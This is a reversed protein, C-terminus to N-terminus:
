ALLGSLFRPSIEVDIMVTDSIRRPYDFAPCNKLGCMHQFFSSKGIEVNISATVDLYRSRFTAVGPANTDTIREAAFFIHFDQRDCILTNGGRPGGNAPLMDVIRMVWM